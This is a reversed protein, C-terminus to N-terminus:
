EKNISRLYIGNTALTIYVNTKSYVIYSESFASSDDVSDMWKKWPFYYLSPELSYNVMNVKTYQYIIM